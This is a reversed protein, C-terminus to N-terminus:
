GEGPCGGHQAEASVRLLKGRFGGRLNAGDGAEGGSAGSPGEGDTNGTSKAEWRSEPHVSATGAAPPVKEGCAGAPAGGVDPESRRGRHSRHNRWGSGCSRSQGESAEM